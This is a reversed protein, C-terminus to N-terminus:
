VTKLHNMFKNRDVMFKVKDEVFGIEELIIIKMLMRIKEMAYYLAEGELSPRDGEVRRDIFMLTDAVSRVFNPFDDIVQGMFGANERLKALLALPMEVEAETPLVHGLLRREEESFNANLAAESAALFRRTNESAGEPSMCLFRFAVLTKAFKEDLYKPEAYMHGFYVTCFEPHRESFDYWNRFVNLGAATSDEHTYLMEHPGLRKKEGKLQFIPDYILNLMATGGGDDKEARYAIQDVQNPRDTAFSIFNQFLRVHEEGLSTPSLDGVPEIVLRASETLSVSGLTESANFQYGLFLTKDGFTFSTGPQKHYSATYTKLDPLRWEAHLGGRGAWETLHSFALELSKFRSLGESLHFNGIGARTCRIEQSRIAVMNFGTGVSYCEPLTVFAGYPCDKVLGHILPFTEPDTFFGQHFSGLLNLHIGNSDYELTGAVINEPEDFPHWRGSAKFYEM